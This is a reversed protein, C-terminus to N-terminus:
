RTRRLQDFVAAAGTTRSSDVGRALLKPRCRSPGDSGHRAPVPRGPAGGLRRLLQEDGTDRAAVALRQGAGSGPQDFVDVACLDALGPVLNRALRACADQVDLAATM